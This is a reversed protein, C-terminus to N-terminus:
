AAGGLGRLLGFVQFAPDIGALERKFDVGQGHAGVPRQMEQVVFLSQGFGSGGNELANAGHCCWGAWGHLLALAEGPLGVWLRQENFNGFSGYPDRPVPVGKFRPPVSSASTTYNEETNSKQGGYERVRVEESGPSSSRLAYCICFWDSPPIPLSRLKMTTASGRSGESEETGGRKLPK